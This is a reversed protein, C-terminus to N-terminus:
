SSYEVNGNSYRNLNFFIDVGYDMLESLDKDSLKKALTSRNTKDFSVVFVSLEESPTNEIFTNLLYPNHTAIFFQTKTQKIIEDALFSVYPPFAHTDPEDLTIVTGTPHKVAATYFLIRRFTDALAEYPLSYVIGEGIRLQLSINNNSKDINLDFGHERVFDNALQKMDSNYSIVSALNNGFPPMLSQIYNGTDHFQINSKYRYPIIPSSYFQFPERPSFDNDFNTFQGATYFEFFNKEKKYEIKSGYSFGPHVISIPTSLNGSHFMDAVKNVRFFNKLDILEKAFKKDEENIGMMWSLYSLDLGELINSKGSNPEGILLNIRSCNLELENISKYNSIQLNQIM